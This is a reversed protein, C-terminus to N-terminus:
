EKLKKPRLSPRRVNKVNNGWISSLKRLFEKRTHFDSHVLIVNGIIETTDAGKYTPAEPLQGAPGGSYHLFIEQLKSRGRTACALTLSLRPSPTNM